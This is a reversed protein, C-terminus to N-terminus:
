QLVAANELRPLKQQFGVHGNPPDPFAQAKMRGGIEGSSELAHRTQRWGSETPGDSRAARRSIRSCQPLANEALTSNARWIRFGVIGTGHTPNLRHLRFGILAETAFVGETTSVPCQRLSAFLASYSWPHSANRHWNLSAKM